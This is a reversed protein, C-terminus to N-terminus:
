SADVAAATAALPRIEICGFRASPIQEAVAIAEDLDKTEILYYGGLHERTEAYPGDTLLRKGAQVRVTTATTAPQLQSGAVYQGRAKLQASLSRYEAMLQDRESATMRAWTQPNDYILLMYRM